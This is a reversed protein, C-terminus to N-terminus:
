RHFGRRFPNQGLPYEGGEITRIFRVVTANEGALALALKRTSDLDIEKGELFVRTRKKEPEGSVNGTVTLRPSELRLEKLSLEVTGNEFSAGGILHAGDIRVTKGQHNLVMHPVTAETEVQLSRLGDAKLDLQLTMEGDEALRQAKSFFYRELDGPRFRTVKVHGEFHYSAPLLRGDFSFQEWLNSGSELEIESVGDGGTIRCEIGEFRFLHTDKHDLAVSGNRVIVTLDEKTLPAM